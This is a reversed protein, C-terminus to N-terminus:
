RRWIEQFRRLVDARSEAPVVAELLEATETLRSKIVDLRITGSQPRGFGYASAWQLAQTHLKHDPDRLIKDVAALTAERTVLRRCMERFDETVREKGPRSGRLVKGQGHSPTELRAAPAASEPQPVPQDRGPADVRVRRVASM